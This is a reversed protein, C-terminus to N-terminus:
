PHILRAVDPRSALNCTLLPPATSNQCPPNTPKATLTLVPRLTVAAHPRRLHPRSAPWGADGADGAVAALM